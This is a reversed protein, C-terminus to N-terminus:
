GILYASRLASESDPFVSFNMGRQEFDFNIGKLTSDAATSNM